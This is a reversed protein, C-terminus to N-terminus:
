PAHSFVLYSLTTDIFKSKGPVRWKSDFATVASSIPVQALSLSAAPGNSPPHTGNPLGAVNGAAPPHMSLHSTNTPIHMGNKHPLEPDSSRHPTPRAATVGDEISGSVAASSHSEEHSAAEHPISGAVAMPTSTSGAALAIPDPVSSATAGAASSRTTEDAGAQTDQRERQSNGDSIDIGSKSSAEATAPAPSQSKFTSTSAGVGLRLMIKQPPIDPSKAAAMKLKLSPQAPESVSKKAEVLRSRFFKELTDALNSIESGDENYQHANRWILSVHDEYHSWGKFMSIGTPDDRGQVGRVKKEIRKLSEPTKILHYYDTLKRTPLNLFPWSIGQGSYTGRADSSAGDTDIQNLLISM